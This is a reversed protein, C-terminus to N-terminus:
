FIRLNPLSLQVNKKISERLNFDSEITQSITYKTTPFPESVSVFSFYTQFQYYNDLNHSFFGPFVKSLLTLVAKNIQQMIPSAIFLSGIQEVLYSKFAIRYFSTIHEYTEQSM